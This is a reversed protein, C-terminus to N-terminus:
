TTLDYSQRTVSRRAMQRLKSLKLQAASFHPAIAVAQRFSRLAKQYNKQRLFVTGMVFHILPNDPYTRSLTRLAPIKTGQYEYIIAHLAAYFEETYRLGFSLGDFNLPLGYLFHNLTEDLKGAARLYEPVSHM